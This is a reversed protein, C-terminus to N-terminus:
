FDQMLQARNIVALYKDENSVRRTNFTLSQSVSVTSATTTYSYNPLKTTYLRNANNKETYVTCHTCTATKNLKQFLQTPRLKRNILQTYTQRHCKLWRYEAAEQPSVVQFPMLGRPLRSTSSVEEREEGERKRNTSSNAANREKESSVSSRKEGKGM